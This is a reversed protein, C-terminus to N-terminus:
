LTRVLVKTIFAEIFAAGLLLPIVVKGFIKAASIFLDTLLIETRRKFIKRVLSLCIYSGISASLILAPVEFIAHPLLGLLILKLLSIGKITKSCLLLGIVTGNLLINLYPLFLFPICGIAMLMLCAKLNNLLLTIFLTSSDTHVSIGQQDLRTRFGVLLTDIYQPVSNFIIYSIIASLFFLCGLTIFHTKYKKLQEQLIERNYMYNM